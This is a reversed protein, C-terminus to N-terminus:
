PYVDGSNNQNLIRFKPPIIKVHVCVYVSIKLDANTYREANTYILDLIVALVPLAIVLFFRIPATSKQGLEIVTDSRDSFLEKENFNKYVNRNQFLILLM